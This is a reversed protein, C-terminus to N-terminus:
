SAGRGFAILVSRCREEWSYKEVDRRAQRALQKGRIPDSQLDLLAKQWASADGAPCFIVNNANLVEHLVPLDSSLIPREAAMYEFIKMPSSVASINEGGSNTFGDEYPILLADSAAQYLPLHQNPIFGTLTINKLGKALITARWREVDEITGGAWIFNMAPLCGALEIVMEMGRGRYLHGSCVVTFKQPLDLKQRASVPDPLNQYRDLDVGSPAVVVDGDPLPPIYKEQLSDKLANTIPVLLKRGPLRLFLKYWLPGFRGAPLQHMELIVPIKFLLGLVAPPLARSYLLDADMRIARRLGKWPISRRKFIPDIPFFEINFFTSLGYHEALSEWAPNTPGSTPAFLTLEHGLSSFAQCVKMVQITNARESPLNGAFIYAIKM